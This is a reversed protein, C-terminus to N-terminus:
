LPNSFLLLNTLQSGCFSWALFLGCLLWPIFFPSPRIFHGPFSLVGLSDYANGLSEDTRGEAAWHRIDMAIKMDKENCEIAKRYDGLSKYANGLNGEGEQNGIEIANKLTKERYEVAKWYKGLLQNSSSSAALGLPWPAPSFILLKWNNLEIHATFAQIYTMSVTLYM